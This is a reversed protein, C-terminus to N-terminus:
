PQGRWSWGNSREAGASTASALQVPVAPVLPRPTGLLRQLALCSEVDGLTCAQSYLAEVRAGDQPLAGGATYMRALGYCGAGHGLRCATDFIHARAFAEYSATGPPAYSVDDGTLRAEQAISLLACSGGDGDRCSRERQQSQAHADGLPMTTNPTRVTAIREAFAHCTYPHGQDCARRFLTEASGFLEFAGSDVMLGLNFCAGAFGEHCASAYFAAVRPIDLRLDHERGVFLEEGSCERAAGHDCARRHYFAARLFDRPLGDGLAWADALLACSSGSSEYCALDLFAAARETQGVRALQKGVRICSGSNGEACDQECSRPDSAAAEVRCPAM